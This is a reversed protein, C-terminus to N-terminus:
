AKAAFFITAVAKAAPLKLFNTVDSFAASNTVVNYLCLDMCQKQALPHLMQRFGLLLNLHM